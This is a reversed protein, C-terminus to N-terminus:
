RYIETMLVSTFPLSPVIDCHQRFHVSNLINYAVHQSIKMSLQENTNM